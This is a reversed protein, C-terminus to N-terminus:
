VTKGEKWDGPFEVKEKFTLTMLIGLWEQGDQPKVDLRMAEGPGYFRLKVPHKNEERLFESAGKLMSALQAADVIVEYVPQTHPMANRDIDPFWGTVQRQSLVSHTELDTTVAHVSEADFSVGVYNLIPMRQKTPISKELKTVLSLPLLGAKQGNGQPFTPVTPYDGIKATPLSVRVMKYGDTACTGKESVQVAQLAYRSKEKSAFQSVALNAKNLLLM